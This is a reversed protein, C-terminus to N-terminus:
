AFLYHITFLIVKMNIGLMDVKLSKRKKVDEASAGGLTADPFNEKKRKPTKPVSINSDKDRKQNQTESDQVASENNPDFKNVKHLFKQQKTSLDSIQSRMTRKGGTEKDDSSTKSSYPDISKRSERKHVINTDLNSEKAADLLSKLERSRVKEQVQETKTKSSEPPNVGDNPNVVIEEITDETLASSPPSTTSEDLAESTDQEESYAHEIIIDKATDISTRIDEDPTPIVEEIDAM